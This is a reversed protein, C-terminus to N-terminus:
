VTVLLYILSISMKLIWGLVQSQQVNVLTIEINKNGTNNTLASLFALFLHFNFSFFHM